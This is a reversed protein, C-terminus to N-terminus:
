AGDPSWVPNAAPGAVLRIPDGGGAAIKFLGPKQAEDIGGAVIWAGDPSWDVTGQIELSEALGHFGTGDSSLIALRRRRDKLQVVAVRSADRSVAPPEFMAGEVGKRLEVAEAQQFRWLGDATGRSSLYYLAGGRFRPALARATPLDYPRVESDEAPQDLIPVTWLSAKPAM